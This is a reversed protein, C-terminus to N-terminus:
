GGVRIQLKRIESKRMLVKECDKPINSYLILSNFSKGGMSLPFMFRTQMLIGFQLRALDSNDDDEYPNLFSVRVCMPYLSDHETKNM